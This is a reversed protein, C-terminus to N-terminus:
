PSATTRLSVAAGGSAGNKTAIMGSLSTSASAELASLGCSIAADSNQTRLSWPAPTISWTGSARFCTFFLGVDGPNATPAFAAAAPVEFPATTDSTFTRLTGNLASANRIAIVAAVSGTGTVPFSYSAPEAGTAVKKLIHTTYAPEDQDEYHETWGAPITAACSACGTLVFAVLLDGSAGGAPKTVVVTGAGAFPQSTAAGVTAPTMTTFARATSWAGTAGLADENRARWYYTTTASLTSPPSWSGNTATSLGSSSTGTQLVTSCASTTCLEFRVLGTDGPTSDNFTATLTPQIWQNTAGSSPSVLTASGPAGNIIVPQAASWASPSASSDTGRARWYRTVNAALASGPTWTGNAGNAVSSSTGTAVVTGGAAVCTQAPAASVTCVEVTITGTDGADPDSFTASFTPTTSVTAGSTPAVLAPATPPTNVTLSVIEITVGSTRAGALTTSSVNAGFRLSATSSGSGTTDAVQANVGNTTGLARWPDANTATCSGGPDPTWSAATAGAGVSELCVGFMTDGATWDDGGLSFDPMQAMATGTGDTQYALMRANGSDNGFSVTCATAGLAQVPGVLTGFDLASAACGTTNVSLAANASAGPWVLALLCALLAIRGTSPM